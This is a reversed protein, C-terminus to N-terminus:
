GSVAFVAQNSKPTANSKPTGGCDARYPRNCLAAAVRFNGPVHPVGREAHDKKEATDFSVRWQRPLGARCRILELEWASDHLSGPEPTDAAASTVQWRTVAASPEHRSKAHEHVSLLFFATVGSRRAALQLRRSATLDLGRVEGVVALLEPCQLGEEMAWQIDAERRGRVLLLREPDIGYAALGPAYLNGTEYLGAPPLCWLIQKDRNEELAAMRGLIAAIFGMGAGNDGAMVEHLAGRPLGGWPLAGDIAPDGFGIVQDDHCVDLSQREIRDIEDRLSAVRAKRPPHASAPRVVSVEAKLPRSPSIRSAPRYVPPAPIRHETLM